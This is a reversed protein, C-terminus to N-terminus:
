KFLIKKFPQEISKDLKNQLMLAFCEAFFEYFNKSSYQTPFPIKNKKFKDFLDIVEGGQESFIGRQFISTSSFGHNFWYKHGLEHLFAQIIFDDYLIKDNIFMCKKSVDYHAVENSKKITSSIEIRGNCLENSLNGCKNIVDDIVQKIRQEQQQNYYIVEFNKYNMRFFCDDIINFKGAGQLDKLQMDYKKLLLDVIEKDNLVKTEKVIDNYSINLYKQLDREIEQISNYKSFFQKIEDCFYDKTFGEYKKSFFSKKFFTVNWNDNVKKIYLLIPSSLKNNSMVFLDDNYYNFVSSLFLRNAIKIVKDM